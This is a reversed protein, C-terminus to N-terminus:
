LYYHSTHVYHALNDFNVPKETKQPGDLGISIPNLHFCFQEVGRLKM